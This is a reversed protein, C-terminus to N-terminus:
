LNLYKTQYKGFKMNKEKIHVNGKLHHIILFKQLNEALIERM